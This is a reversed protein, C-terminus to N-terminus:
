REVPLYGKERLLEVFRSSLRLFDTGLARMTEKLEFRRECLDSHRVLDFVKVKKECMRCNEILKEVGRKMKGIAVWEDIFLSRLVKNRERLMERAEALMQDVTGPAARLLGAMSARLRRPGLREEGVKRFAFRSHYLENLLGLYGRLAKALSVTEGTSAGTQGLSDQAIDFVHNEDIHM